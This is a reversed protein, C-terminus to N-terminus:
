LVGAEKMAADIEDKVTQSQVPLSIWAYLNRVKLTRPASVFNGRDTWVTATVRM